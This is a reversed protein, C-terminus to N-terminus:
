KKFFEGNPWNLNHALTAIIELYLEEGNASNATIVTGKGVEPFGIVICVSGPSNYGNHLFATKENEGILLVGLGMFAKQNYFSFPLQSEKHILRLATEKSFIESDNHYAKMIEITLKALDEPTTLLGGQAKAPLDLQPPREHGLKDHPKAERNSFNSPLPYEFTSSYMELPNFITEKAIQQFPKAFVDELIQQILAYGINSYAWTSRPKEVPFAPKNIAPYQGELIQVLSPVGAKADFDFNTSPLGSQHSLLLRLTIPNAKTLENEPVKWSKLYQNVDTDLDLLGKSVYQHVIVATVYKSVSAVQFMTSKTVSNLSDSSGLAILNNTTFDDIVAISVGPVKLREMREALPHLEHSQVKGSDSDIIKYIGNSLDEKEVGLKENNNKCSLVCLLTLPFLVINPNLKFM